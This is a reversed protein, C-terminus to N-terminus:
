SDPAPFVAIREMTGTNCHPCKLPDKGSIYRYIETAPMREFVPADTLTGILSLCQEKLNKAHISAMVGFYRIKYFNDPLVHLMFRRIFEVADLTMTKTIGNRNNDKYRFSVQDQNIGTIRSNSIAVRHTYRGLYNIVSGVGGLPKQAYTIWPRACLQKKLTEWPQEEPLRIQGKEIGQVSYSPNDGTLPAPAAAM